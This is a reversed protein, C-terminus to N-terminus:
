AGDLVTKQIASASTARAKTPWKAGSMPNRFWYWKQSDTADATTSSRPQTTQDEFIGAQRQAGNRDHKACRPCFIATGGALPFDIFRLAGVWTTKMMASIIATIATIP